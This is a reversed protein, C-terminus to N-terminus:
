IKAQVLNIQQGAGKHMFRDMERCQGVFSTVITYGCRSMKTGHRRIFYWLRLEHARGAFRSLFVLPM